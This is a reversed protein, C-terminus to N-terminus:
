PYFFDDIIRSSAQNIILIETDTKNHINANHKSVNM